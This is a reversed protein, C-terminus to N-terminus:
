SSSAASRRRMPVKRFIRAQGELPEFLARRTLLMEAKGVFLVGEPRLAFHFRALVRGQAERNFYMLTNRCVLLDLNSIPADELLDHHDFIIKRKVEPKVVYASGGESTFYRERLGAPVDELAEEGYRGARARVLVNEDADTAFIKTREAFADLGMEEALLIALSYTEEGSAAGACWVRLESDSAIREVLLPLVRKRLVKWAERDRFFRTVNIFITDLLPGFEDPSAQLHDLYAQYDEVGVAEMRKAIRRKLSAQKYVSFDIGRQARVYSLLESLAGKSEEASMSEEADHESEAGPDDARGPPGM